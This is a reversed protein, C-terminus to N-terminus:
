STVQVVIEDSESSGSTCSPSPSRYHFFNNGKVSIMYQTFHSGAQLHPTHSVALYRLKERAMKFVRRWIRQRNQLLDSYAPNDMEMGSDGMRKFEEDAATFKGLTDVFQGDSSLWRKAGARGVSSLWGVDCERATKFEPDGFDFDDMACELAKDEAATLFMFERCISHEQEIQRQM